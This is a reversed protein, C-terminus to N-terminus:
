KVETETKKQENDLALMREFKNAAEVLEAIRSRMCSGCNTTAVHKDLIRNYVTTLLQSDCYYGAQKLKEFKRILALDEKSLEM